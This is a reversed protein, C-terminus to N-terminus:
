RATATKKTGTPAGVPTTQEGNKQRSVKRRRPSKLCKAPNRLWEALLRRLFKGSAIGATRCDDKRGFVIKSLLV